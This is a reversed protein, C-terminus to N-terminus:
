CIRAALGEAAAGWWCPWWARRKMAGCAVEEMRQVVSIPHAGADERRDSPRRVGLPEVMPRPPPRLISPDRGKRANSSTASMRDEFRDLLPGFSGAKCLVSRREHAHLCGGIFGHDAM